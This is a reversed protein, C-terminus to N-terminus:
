NFEKTLYKHCEMAREIRITQAVCIKTDYVVMVYVTYLVM